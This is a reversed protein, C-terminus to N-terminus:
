AQPLAPPPATAALPSPSPASTHSDTPPALPPPTPSPQSVSSPLQRAKPRSPPLFPFLLQYFPSSIRYADTNIHLFVLQTRTQLAPMSSISKCHYRRKNRTCYPATAYCKFHYAMCSSVIERLGTNLNKKETWVCDFFLSRPRMLSRAYELWQNRRNIAILLSADFITPM